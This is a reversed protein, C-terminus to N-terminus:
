MDCVSFTSGVIERHNSM